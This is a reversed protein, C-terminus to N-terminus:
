NDPAGDNVWCAILDIAEQSLDARSAPPMTGAQIRALVRSSSSIVGTTTSLDPFRSGNHCGTVACNSNIIPMVDGSLSVGTTIQVQRTVECGDSDQVTITKSGISLGEFAGSAQGTGGDLRYSYPEVGGTAEIEISGTESGCAANDAAVSLAISGSEGELTASISASCGDTDKVVLSYNGASLEELVPSSQFNVGDASFLYPETGGTASVTMSGPTSCNSSVQSVISISLDSLSCDIQPVEINNSCRTFVLTTALLGVFWMKLSNRM